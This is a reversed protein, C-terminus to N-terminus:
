APEIIGKRRPSALTAIAAALSWAVFPSGCFGAFGLYVAMASSRAERGPWLYSTSALGLGTWPIVFERHEIRLSDGKRIGPQSPVCLWAYDSKVSFIWRASLKSPLSLDETRDDLDIVLSEETAYAVRGERVHLRLGRALPFALAASALFALVGTLRLM